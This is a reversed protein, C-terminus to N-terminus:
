ILLQEAGEENGPEAKFDKIVIAEPIMKYTRTYNIHIYVIHFMQEATSLM